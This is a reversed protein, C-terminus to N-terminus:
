LTIDIDDEDEVVFASGARQQASLPAYKSNPAGQGQGTPKSVYSSLNRASSSITSWIGNGRSQSGPPMYGSSSSSSTTSSTLGHSSSSGHSSGHSSASTTSSNSSSGVGTFAVMEMVYGHLSGFVAGVGNLEEGDESRTVKYWYYMAYGMAGIMLVGLLSAVITLTHSKESVANSQSDDDTEVPDAKMATTITITNYLLRQPKCDEDGGNCSILVRPNSIVKSLQRLCLADCESLVRILYRRNNMLNSFRHSMTYDEEGGQGRGRILPVVAKVWGRSPLTSALYEIACPATATSLSDSIARVESLSMDFIWATYAMEDAILSLSGSGSAPMLVRSQRWSLTVTNGTVTLLSLTGSEALDQMGAYVVRPSLDIGRYTTRVQLNYRSTVTSLSSNALVFYSGIRAPLRLVTKDLVSRVCKDKSSGPVRTCAQSHDAYYGYSASSPLMSACSNDDACAYLATNGSCQELEVILSDGNPNTDSPSDSRNPDKSPTAASQQSCIEYYRSSPGSAGRGSIVDPAIVKIGDPYTRADCPILSVDGPTRATITFTAPVKDDNHSVAIFYVCDEGAKDPDCYASSASSDGNSQELDSSSIFLTSGGSAPLVTLAAKHQGLLDSPKRDLETCRSVTCSSVYVTLPNCSCGPACVGKGGEGDMSNRSANCSPSVSLMVDKVPVIVGLRRRGTNTTTTTHAVTFTFYSVQVKRKVSSSGACAGTSESRKSCVWGPSTM